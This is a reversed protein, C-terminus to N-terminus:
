RNTRELVNEHVDLLDGDAFEVLYVTGRQKNAFHPGGKLEDPVIGVVRGKEGPRMGSPSGAKVCVADDVNLYNAEGSVISTVRRTVRETIIWLGYASLAIMLLAFLPHIDSDILGLKVAWACYFPVVFVKVGGDIGGAM